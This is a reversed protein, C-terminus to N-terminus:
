FGYNLSAGGYPALSLNTYLSHHGEKDKIYFSGGFNCGGFIEAEVRLFKEYRLNIEAGMTSYNFISNPQTQHAGTRFRERIPRGKLAISWNKNWSYQIKYDIPFILLFLWDKNWTYDFGILPYVQSSEMGSYAYFGIHYHWRDWIEYAGWLLASFLNYDSNGFHNTDMNYDARAIWRWQDLDNTFFTLAFQVYNFHTSQFKPNKNWNMQFTNWEVRPIFYNKENIPTLLYVFTNIKNFTLDGGYPTDHVDAKGFFIANAGAHLPHFDWYTYNKEQSSLATAALFFSAGLIKRIINM